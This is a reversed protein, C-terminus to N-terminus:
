RAHHLSVKTVDGHPTKEAYVDGQFKYIKTQTDRWADVPLGAKMCTHSLFAEVDWGYEVPVQPLLLGRYRDKEVILGDEGVTIHNPYDAPSAIEILVPPTLVTVEVIIHSLEELTLVTFRPDHTASVAADKIAHALPMVPEPIGICGRLENQPHTHLTVFVGAKPTFAEDLHTTIHKGAIHHEIVERAYRVAKKGNDESFSFRANM